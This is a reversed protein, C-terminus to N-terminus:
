TILELLDILDKKDLKSSQKIKDVQEKIENKVVYPPKEFSLNNNKYFGPWNEKLLKFNDDSIDIISQSEKTKIKEDSWGSIRGNNKNYIINIKM